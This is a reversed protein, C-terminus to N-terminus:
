GNSVEAAQRIEAVREQVAFWSHFCGSLHYLRNTTDTEPFYKVVTVGFIREDDIGRGESIEYAINGALDLSIFKPTMLNMQRPYERKFIARARDHYNSITNLNM